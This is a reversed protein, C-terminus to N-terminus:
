VIPLGVDKARALEQIRDWTRADFPVDRASARASIERDGPMLVPRDAVLPPASRVYDSLRGGLGPFGKDLQVAILALNNGIREPDMVQDGALLTAMVESLIGMATGKHGFDEGGLPQLAGPPDAYLANPDLTPNGQADRLVGAPAPAGRNKLSRIQGETTASTAFDAVVPAGTTPFAYSIPNTALRGERGGFPAVRHGALPGSCFAVGLCGRSAITGTYAGIRGAHGADRVTVLSVGHAAAAELAVQVAFAGGVQGFSRNGNVKIRGGNSEAITPNAKPDIEGNLVEEIYQPLRIVGHSHLGLLNSEVLHTVVVSAHAHPAGYAVLLRTGLEVAAEPSIRVEDISQAPTHGGSM